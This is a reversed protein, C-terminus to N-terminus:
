DEIFGGSQHGWLRAYTGKAELLDGHTGQEAIEGDTLVVIRDLKAITSLRHAIVISTRGKMLKVLAEQILKESESDLASTAEDLVLIPANKLIARAIAIRQRQGGSLKVGREGVITDLGKPLKEIFELANAQKVAAMIEKDTANPHGYAINERLSRHFLYAEQPVYAIARHLSDQSVQSIDQGDITISGGQLDAFRLVLKSLTTKGGGSPGALGVREGAAISLSLSKIVSDSDSDKYAFDIANFNIAGGKVTLDSASPIDKVEPVIDLIETIDAADIFAQELNRIIPTVEYLSSALRGLYTVTFILAALSLLNSSFLFVCVLMTLIQFSFLTLQRITSERMIIDIEDSAIQELEKRKTIIKRVENKRTAFFRVIQNNGIVDAVLGNLQSTHFKRKNRLSRRHNLASVSQYVLLGTVLGLPILLIPAMIGIIILSAVFNVLISSANLYLTDLFVIISRTFSMVDGSLSGVKKNAFFQDSHSLLKSMAQETLETSMVEEHNFQRKLGINASLASIFALVLTVGLLILPYGWDGPHLILHQIILSFILPVLVYNILRNLPVLITYIIFNKKDKMIIRKYITLTKRVLKANTKAYPDIM